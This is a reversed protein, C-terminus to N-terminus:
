FLKDLDGKILEVMAKEIDPDVTESKKKRVQAKGTSIVERTTGKNEIAVSPEFPLVIRTESRLTSVTVLKESAVGKSLIPESQINKEPEGEKVLESEGLSSDSEKTLEPEKVLRTSEIELEPEVAMESGADPQSIDAVDEMSSKGNLQAVEAQEMVSPEVLNMVNDTALSPTIVESIVEPETPDAKEQGGYFFYGLYALGCLAIFILLYMLGRLFGGKKQPHRNLVEPKVGLTESKGRSLDHKPTVDEANVPIKSAKLFAPIAETPASIAGAPAPATLEAEASSSPEVDEIFLPVERPLNDNMDNISLIQECSQCQLKNPSNFIRKQVFSRHLKVLNFSGCALCYHKSVMNSSPTHM